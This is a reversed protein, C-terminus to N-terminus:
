IASDAAQIEQSATIQSLVRFISVVGKNKFHMKRAKKLHESVEVFVARDVKQVQLFSAQFSAVFLDKVRQIIAIQSDHQEAEEKWEADKAAKAEEIQALKEILLALFDELDAKEKEKDAKIPKL